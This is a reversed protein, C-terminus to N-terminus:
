RRSRTLSSLDNSDPTRLEVTRMSSGAVEARPTRGPALGPPYSDSFTKPKRCLPRRTHTTSRVAAGRPQPCASAAIQRHLLRPANGAQDGCCAAFFKIMEQATGVPEEDLLWHGHEPWRVIAGEPLYAQNLAVREIPIFADREGWVIRFPVEPRGDPPIRQLPTEPARYRNIMAGMSGDRAWASKYLALEQDDFTGARSTSRLYYSTLWWDGARSVLEPAFPLQFFGRFWSVSKPDDEPRTDALLLLHTGNFVIAAHVRHPSEFVLQWTTGAGVDHGAIFTQQWGLADLIGVVDDTLRRATYELPDNPKDSRNAGRQDPAAVRFGARALAAMQAHWTYWFQPFGHLLIVPPGDEPGALVVHLQVGDVNVKQSEFSVGTKETAYAVEDIPERNGSWWALVVLALM